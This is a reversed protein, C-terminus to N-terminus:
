FIAPETLNFPSSTSTIWGSADANLPGPLLLGTKLPNAQGTLDATYGGGAGIITTTGMMMDHLFVDSTGNTDGPALNDAYSYFTIYRGDGSIAPGSSTNNAQTGDSAVSVRQTLGTLRDRVFIDWTGNTDGKVLNTALSSFAIYRGDDSLAPTMSTANAQTGDSTVSVRETTGLVRDRLFIDWSANTDGAVLNTAESYFAVYQGDASLMPNYSNHNSQAGTSSVSIRETEGTVLNRVFLDYFNNTDRPVLNPSGSRFAVSNGDDSINAAFSNGAAAAGDTSVSVLETTGAQSDHIFIDMAEKTDSRTLNIADSRFSIYRGDGSISAVMSGQYTPNRIVYDAQKGTSTVSVRQTVGTAVEYVFVDFGSNTDGNVLNNARSLFAVHNGDASIYPSWSEDNAEAGNSTVSIRKTKATVTDYLFVDAKGNRDNAVLNDFDSQFVLYRGDDSIWPATSGARGLEPTDDSTIGVRADMPVSTGPIFILTREDIVNMTMVVSNFSRDAGFDEVLLPEALSVRASSPTLLIESSNVDKLLFQFDHVAVLSDLSGFCDEPLNEFPGYAADDPSLLQDGAADATVTYSEFGTSLNSYDDVTM